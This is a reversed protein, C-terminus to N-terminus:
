VDQVNQDVNTRIAPPQWYFGDSPTGTSIPREPTMVFHRNTTLHNSTAAARLPEITAGVASSSSQSQPGLELDPLRIEARAHELVPLGVEIQIQVVSATSM